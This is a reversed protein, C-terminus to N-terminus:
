LVDQGMSEVVMHLLKGGELPHGERCFCHTLQFRWTKVHIGMMAKWIHLLHCPVQSSVLHCYCKILIIVSKHESPCDISLLGGM